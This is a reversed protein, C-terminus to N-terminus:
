SGSDGGQEREAWDAEYEVEAAKRLEDLHAEVMQQALQGRIQERVEALPPPEATREDELLIVHWGFRTQVPADTYNGKEMSGIADAFPQVMQDAAFWGLDGGQSASPGTSNEESLTAFDAGDDLQDILEKAKAEDDVLIHRAKFEKGGGSNAFNEQYYTEIESDPIAGEATMKQVLAQAMIARKVNEIQAAVAPDDGLGQERADQALLSLNVMEDLFQRRENDGLQVDPQGSTRQELLQDFEPQTIAEDNVHALVDANTLASPEDSQATAQTCGNIGIAVVLAAGATLYRKM